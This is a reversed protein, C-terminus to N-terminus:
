DRLEYEADGMNIRDWLAMYTMKMSPTIQQTNCSERKGDAKEQGLDYWIIFGWILM